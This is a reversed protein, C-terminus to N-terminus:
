CFSYNVIFHVIFYIYVNSLKGERGERTQLTYRLANYFAITKGYTIVLIEGDAVLEMSSPSADFSLTKVADTSNRDWLSSVCMRNCKSVIFIVCTYGRERLVINWGSNLNSHIFTSVCNVM